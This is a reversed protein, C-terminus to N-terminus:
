DPGPLKPFCQSLFVQYIQHCHTTTQELALYANCDLRDICGFAMEAADRCVQGVTDVQESLSRRCRPHCDADPYDRAVKCLNIKNCHIDCSTSVIQDAGHRERQLQDLHVLEEVRKQLKAAAQQGPTLVASPATEVPPQAAPQPKACAALTIALVILLLRTMM